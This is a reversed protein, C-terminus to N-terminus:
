RACRCPQASRIRSLPLPKFGIRRVAAPDKFELGVPLGSGDYRIQVWSSDTDFVLNREIRQLHRIRRDIDDWSGGCSINRVFVNRKPVGIADELINALSPYRRRWLGSRYPMARLRRQLAGDPDLTMARQWTMGRADLHAAKWCDVFVNNDVVNDSGGGIFVARSCRVFLNGYVTHGCIQDDLYITMGGLGGSGRIDHWYNYRLVTGRQTWDRGVYFAGADGSEYVVRFVENYEVIHDNGPAALAMHPGDHIVNNAIRQGVGSVSIAPHYTRHRRAFHHVHNHQILHNAPTLTSREGGTASIGGAGTHAIECRQVVHDRGGRIVIGWLGTNRIRCQRVVCSRGGRIEIATGRCYEMVFGEFGVFQVDELRLFGEGISLVPEADTRPPWYYLMRGPRDIYYEGPQDLECLLNVAYWRATRPEIGYLPRIQATRVLLGQEPDVAELPEFLEAWDYKWYAMVWPEPERSWRRLRTREVSVRLHRVDRASQLGLFRDNPYRALVAPRGELFLEAEAIQTPQGFGRVTLRGLQAADFRDLRIMRVHPRAEPALREAARPETTVPQGPPLQVGASFVVGDQESARYLVPSEATGSDAPGFSVPADFTYIGPAFLVTVPARRNRLVERVRDRAGALTRLPAEFTGPNTDKGNPSVYLKLPEHGAVLFVGAALIWWGHM